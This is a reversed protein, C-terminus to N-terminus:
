RVTENMVTDIEKENKRGFSVLDKKDGEYIWSIIKIWVRTYYTVIM